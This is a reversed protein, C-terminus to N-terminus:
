SNIMLPGFNLLSTRPACHVLGFYLPVRSMILWTNLYWVHCKQDNYPRTYRFFNLIFVFYSTWSTELMTKRKVGYLMDALTWYLIGFYVLHWVLTIHYRRSVILGFLILVGFMVYKTIVSGAVTQQEEMIRGDNGAIQHLYTLTEYFLGFYM